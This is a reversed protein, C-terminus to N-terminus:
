GCKEGCSYKRYNEMIERNLMEIDCKKIDKSIKIPPYFTVNCRKKRPLHRQPPWADFTNELYVPVIELGYASALKLYGHKFPLLEGTRSRTGEPFICIYSGQELARGSIEILGSARNDKGVEITSFIESYKKWLCHRTVKTKAWFRFPIRAIKVLSYGILLFDLYSGHNAILICPRKPINHTGAIKGLWMWQVVKATTYNITNIIRRNMKYRIAAADTLFWKM